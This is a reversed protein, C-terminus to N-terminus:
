KKGLMGEQKLVMNGWLKELVVWCRQIDGQNYNSVCAHTNQQLYCM